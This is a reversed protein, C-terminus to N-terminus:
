EASTAAALMAHVTKTSEMVEISRPHKEPGILLISTCGPVPRISGVLEPKIFVPDGAQYTGDYTHPGPVYRAATLTIFDSM